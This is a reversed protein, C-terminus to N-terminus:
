IKKADAKLAGKTKLEIIAQRGLPIGNKKYSDLPSHCKLGIQKAIERMSLGEFHRVLDQYTMINLGKALNNKYQFM